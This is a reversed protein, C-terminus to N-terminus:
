GSGVTRRCTKRREPQTSADLRADLKTLGRDPVPPNRHTPWWSRWVIPRQEVSRPVLSSTAAAIPRATRILSPRLQDDDRRFYGRRALVRKSPVEVAPWALGCPAHRVSYLSGGAATSMLPTRFATRFPIQCRPAVERRAKSKQGGLVFDIFSSVGDLASHSLWM